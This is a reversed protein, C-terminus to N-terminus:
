RQSFSLMAYFIACFAVLGIGIRLSLVRLRTWASPPKQYQRDRLRQFYVWGIPQFGLLSFLRQSAENGKWVNAEISTVGQLLMKSRALELLNRGIGQRRSGIEVSIDFILGQTDQMSNRLRSKSVLFLVYGLVCDGKSCVISNFYPLGKKRRAAAVVFARFGTSGGGPFYEPLYQAHENGTSENM